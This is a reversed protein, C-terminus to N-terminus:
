IKSNITEIAEKALARIRDNNHNEYSNLLPLYKKNFTLGLAYIADPLLEYSIQQLNDALYDMSDKSYNTILQFIDEKVERKHDVLLHM